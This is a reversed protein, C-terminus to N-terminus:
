KNKSFCNNSFCKKVLVVWGEEKKVHMDSDEVCEVIEGERMQDTRITYGDDHIDEIRETM